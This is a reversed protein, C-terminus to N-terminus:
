PKINKFLKDINEIDCSRWLKHHVLGVTCLAEALRAALSSRGGKEVVPSHLYIAWDNEVVECRYLKILESDPSGQSSNMVDKLIEQFSHTGDCTNLRVTIIEILHDKRHKM